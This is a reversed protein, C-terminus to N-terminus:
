QVHTGVSTQRAATVKTVAATSDRDTNWTSCAASYITDTLLIIYFVDM